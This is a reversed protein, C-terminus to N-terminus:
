DFVIYVVHNAKYDLEATVTAREQRNPKRALRSGIRIKAFRWVQKLVVSTEFDLLLDCIISSYLPSYDILRYFSLNLRLRPSTVIQINPLATFTMSSPSWSIGIKDSKVVIFSRLICFWCDVVYVLEFQAPSASINRNPRKTFSQRRRDYFPSVTAKAPLILSQTSYRENKKM